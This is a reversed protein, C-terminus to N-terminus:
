AQPRANPPPEVSLIVVLALVLLLALGIVLTVGFVVCEFVNELLVLVLEFGINLWSPDHSIERSELMRGGSLIYNIEAESNLILRNGMQQVVAPNTDELLNIGPLWFHQLNDVELHSQLEELFGVFHKGLSNRGNWNEGTKRIYHMFATKLHYSQLPVSSTLERKFLTKVIRLLEHRCGHDDRDMCQLMHKERLSFSRRWFLEPHRVNLSANPKPVLYENCDTEFCPVLDVSLLKKYTGRKMIDLQVAPGHYRM